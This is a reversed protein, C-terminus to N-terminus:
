PDIDTGSLFGQLQQDAGQTESDEEDEPMKNAVLGGGRIVFDHLVFGESPERRNNIDVSRASWGAFAATEELRATFTEAQFAQLTRGQIMVRDSEIAVQTLWVDGGTVRGLAQLPASFGDGLSVNIGQFASLTREYAAYRRELRDRREILSASPDM